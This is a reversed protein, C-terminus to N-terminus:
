VEPKVVYVDDSHIMRIMDYSRYLKVANPNSACYDMFHGIVKNTKETGTTVKTAVTNLSHMMKNDM